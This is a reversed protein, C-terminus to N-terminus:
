LPNRLTILSKKKEKRTRGNTKQQTISALILIWLEFKLKVNSPIQFCNAKLFTIYAEAIEIAGVEV